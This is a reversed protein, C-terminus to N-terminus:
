LLYVVHVIIPTPQIQLALQIPNPGTRYMVVEPCSPPRSRYLGTETCSSCASDAQVVETCSPPGNRYLKQVVETCLSFHHLLFVRLPIQTLSLSLLINSRYVYYTAFSSSVTLYWRRWAIRGRLRVVSRCNCGRWWVRGVCDVSLSLRNRQSQVCLLQLLLQERSALSAVHWTDEGTLRNTVIIFMWWRSHQGSAQQCNSGFFIM